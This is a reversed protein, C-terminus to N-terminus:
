EDNEEEEEEEDELLEPSGVLEMLANVLDQLPSREATAAEEETADDAEGIKVTNYSGGCLSAPARCKLKLIHFPTDSEERCEYCRIRVRKNRYEHPMPTAAIEDDMVNIYHRHQEKSMM